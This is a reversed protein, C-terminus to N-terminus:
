DLIGLVTGPRCHVCAPVQQRLEELAQQRTVPRCRGSKAAAWCEDTHVTDVNARNLGHQTLCKPPPPQYQHFRISHDETASAVTIPM